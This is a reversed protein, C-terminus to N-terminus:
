YLKQLSRRMRGNLWLMINHDPHDQDVHGQHSVIFRSKWLNDAEKDNCIYELKQIYTIIDKSQYGNISLLFKIQKPIDHISTEHNEILKIVKARQRNGEEENM